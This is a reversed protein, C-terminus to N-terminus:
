RKKSDNQPVRLIESGTKAYKLRYGLHKAENLM